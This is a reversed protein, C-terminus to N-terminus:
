VVVELAAYVQRRCPPHSGAQEITLIPYGGVKAQGLLILRQGILIRPQLLTDHLQFHQICLVPQIAELLYLRYLTYM